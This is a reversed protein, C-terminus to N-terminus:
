LKQQLNLVLSYTGEEVTTEVKVGSQYFVDLMPRNEALVEASFTRIGREKAIRILYGLLFTGIGKNQWDDHVAFAVEADNTKKDLVYRGVAIIKLREKERVVGVIAMATDYDINVFSQLERHPMRIKPGMFRLYISRQSFSYFLDKLPEEDTPRIPRFFVQSDGFTRYTEYEQPYPLGRYPVDSQDLFVYRLFKAAALLDERFKPHAINIMALARQMISKGHLEAVGYETVVYHVDGRTTTVGAGDSLRPAIRSVQGGQATSPLAIIPKGGKSRAAGRVFDVQGGLGSYFMYGIQDACVQGTLDVELASNIAVMKENRGILCPDNTYNSPHFEIAPNNHVFDFLSKSGICFSAIIKDKHVTKRKGNVVGSEVLDVIGDSFMETHVGLDRKDKLNKLVSNPIAGYGIQITSGDEVLDAVFRGISDAEIQTGPDVSPWELLPENGEVLYDIDSIHIFSDGLVRPMNQNIQAIVVDAAETATKTIDVSVGFSCYGHEDPPSVQILAVDIPIRGEELLNGIESLYVPTYDARGENVSTRVNPGIFFANVRFQDTFKEESYPTLGLSLTHIIENDALSDAKAVLAKVLMQPEGCATGIFVRQGREIVDVADKATRLKLRLDEKCDKAVPKGELTYCSPPYKLTDTLVLPQFLLPIFSFPLRGLPM